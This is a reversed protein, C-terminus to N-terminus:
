SVVRQSRGPQNAHVHSEREKPLLLCGPGKICHSDPLVRRVGIVHQWLFCLLFASWRLREKSRRTGSYESSMLSTGNKEVLEGCTPSSGVVGETLMLVGVLSVGVLLIKFLYIRWSEWRTLILSAYQRRQLCSRYIAGESAVRFRRDPRCLVILSKEVEGTRRERFVLTKRYLSFAYDEKYQVLFPVM